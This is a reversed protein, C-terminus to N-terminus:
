RTSAPPRICPAPRSCRSSPSGWPSRPRSRRPGAILGIALGTLTSVLHGGIVARPQAPTANPSGLVLVISTAFPVFAVQMHHEDAYFHMAFIALCGGIARWVFIKWNV